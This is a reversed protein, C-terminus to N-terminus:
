RLLWDQLRRARERNKHLSSKMCRYYQRAITRVCQVSVNALVCQWVCACVAMLVCVNVDALVRQCVCACMRVWGCASGATM